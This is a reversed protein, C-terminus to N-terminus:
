LCKDINTIRFNSGAFKGRSGMVHHHGSTSNPFRIGFGSNRKPASHANQLFGSVGNGSGSVGNGTEVPGSGSGGWNPPTGSYGGVYNPPWVPYRFLLYNPPLWWMTTGRKKFTWFVRKKRTKKPKKVFGAIQCKRQKEPGGRFSCM